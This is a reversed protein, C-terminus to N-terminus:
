TMGMIWFLTLPIALLGLRFAGDSINISDIIVGLYNDPVLVRNTLIDQRSVNKTNSALDNNAVLLQPLIVIAAAVFQCVLRLLPPLERGNRTLLIDNFLM